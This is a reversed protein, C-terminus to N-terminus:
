ELGETKVGTFEDWAKCYEISKPGLFKTFDKSGFRGNSSSNVLNELFM